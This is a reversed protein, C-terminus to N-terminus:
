LKRPIIRLKINPNIQQQEARILNEFERADVEDFNVGSRSELDWYKKKNQPVNGTVRGLAHKLEHALTVRSPVNTTTDPRGNPSANWGNREDLINWYVITNSPDEARYLDHDVEIMLFTDQCPNFNENSGRECTMLVFDGTCKPNDLGYGGFQPLSQIYKPMENWNQGLYIKNQKLNIIDIKPMNHINDSTYANWCPYSFIYEGNLYILLLGIFLLISIKWKKLFSLM